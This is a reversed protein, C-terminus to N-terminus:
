RCAPSQLARAMPRMVRPGSGLGETQIVGDCIVATHPLGGLNIGVGAALERAGEQQFDVYHYIFPDPDINNLIEDIDANLAHCPACWEAGFSIIVPTDHSQQLITAAPINNSAAREAHASPALAALGFASVLMVDRLSM